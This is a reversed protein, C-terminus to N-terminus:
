MEPKKPKVADPQTEPLLLDNNLECMLTKIDGEPLAAYANRLVTNFRETTIEEHAKNLKATESGASPDYHGFIKAVEIGANQQLKVLDDAQNKKGTERLEFEVLSLLPSAKALPMPQKMSLAM